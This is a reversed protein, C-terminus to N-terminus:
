ESYPLVVRFGITFDPEGPSSFFRFASRIEEGISLWSGGRFMKDYDDEPGKPDIEPENTVTVRYSGFWDWCWEKLNGHM